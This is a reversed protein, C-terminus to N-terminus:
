GRGPVPVPGGHSASERLAQLTAINTEVESLPFLIPQEGLVMAEMAQVEEFYANVNGFRLIEDEIGEMADGFTGRADATPRTSVTVTTDVGVRNLYPHSLRVRGKTGIFEAGWGPSSAFSTVFQGFLENSYRLMAAFTRDVGSQVDASWAFVEKPSIGLVFHFLTVPYCGLDWLSGGGLEAAWRVDEERELTFAFNALCSRVDGIKGEGVIERVASTQRHFRMMSAEQLVVDNEEASAALSAVHAADVALPKECLVHKGAEVAKKAWEYHLANPLSIYVIDVDSRDILEDYSGVPNDIAREGAYVRAREIDRSAVVSINSRSPGRVAEILRDNIRGTGLLGWRLPRSGTDNM